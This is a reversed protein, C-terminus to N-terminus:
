NFEKSTKLVIMTGRSIRECICLTILMKWREEIVEGNLKIQETGKTEKRCFIVTKTKDTNIQTGYRISGADLKALQEQPRSFTVDLQDIDDAFKLHYVERGHIKVGKEALDKLADMIKELFILFASLSIPDGQRNGVAISFWESLEGNLMIAATADKRYSKSLSIASEM